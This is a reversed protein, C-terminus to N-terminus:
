SVLERRLRGSWWDVVLVLVLLVYLYTWVEGYYLNEFSAALHYGLTPFGFFGLVASSRLACEFRYFTYALMDPLARPLIGVAFRAAPPAGALGLADAADTPTEDILEGFIKALVGTYPLAIAAVAVGPGHGLAALLLVAWILEHVSRLVNALVRVVAVVPALRRGMLRTSGLFGLVFGGVVAVSLATAAFVVTAGAARLAQRLLSDGGAAGWDSQFHLAPRLARGFFEGALRLGGRDPLLDAPDLQLRWASWLAALVLAALILGGTAFSGLRSGPGDRRASGGRPELRREFSM